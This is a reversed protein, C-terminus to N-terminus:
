WEEEREVNRERALMLVQKIEGRVISSVLSGTFHSGTFAFSM